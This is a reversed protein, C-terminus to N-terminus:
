LWSHRRWPSSREQYPARDEDSFFGGCSTCPDRRSVQKNTQHADSWPLRFIVDQSMTVSMMRALIQSHKSREM